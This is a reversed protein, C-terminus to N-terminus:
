AQENGRSVRFAAFFVVSVWDGFRERHGVWASEGADSRTEKKGRVHVM